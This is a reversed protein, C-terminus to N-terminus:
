RVKHFLEYMVVAFSFVDAQGPFICMHPINTYNPMLVILLHQSIKYGLDQITPVVCETNLDLNALPDAAPHHDRWVKEDYEKSQFVEPAKFSL